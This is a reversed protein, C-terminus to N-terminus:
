IKRRHRSGATISGLLPRKQWVRPLLTRSRGKGRYQLRAISIVERLISENESPPADTDIIEPKITERVRLYRGVIHTANAMAETPKPNIIMSSECEDSYTMIANRCQEEQSVDYKLPRSPAIGARQLERFLSGTGLISTERGHRM